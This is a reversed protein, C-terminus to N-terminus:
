EEILLLCEFYCHSLYTLFKSTTQGTSIHSGEEMSNKPDSTRELKGNM